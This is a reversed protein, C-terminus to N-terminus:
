QPTTRGRGSCARDAIGEAIVARRHLEDARLDAGFVFPREFGKAARDVDNACVRGLAVHIGFDVDSRQCDIRGLQCTM